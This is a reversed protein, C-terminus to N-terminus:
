TDQSRPRSLGCKARTLLTTREERTIGYRRALNEATKAMHLDCYTDTLALSLSDELQGEGLPIGSRAGRIVHPAQSMNGTGGAFIISAEPMRALRNRTASSLM